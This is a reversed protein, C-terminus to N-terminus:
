GLGLLHDENGNETVGCGALVLLEEDAAPNIATHAIWERGLDAQVMTRFPERARAIHEPRRANPWVM